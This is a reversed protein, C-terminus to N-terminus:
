QIVTTDANMLEFERILEEPTKGLNKIAQEASPAFDSDPYDSLIKDYMARAKDLDHLKDEYVLSGMMFLAVSTKEYEPYSAALKNGTELADEPEGFNVAVEFAKFLYQPALANDPNEDAFRCYTEIMGPVSEQNVTADANFLSAEAKKLDAESVKKPGCAAVSLVVAVGLLLNLLKNM